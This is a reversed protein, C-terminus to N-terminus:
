NAAIQNQIQRLKCAESDICMQAIGPGTELDKAKSECGCLECYFIM